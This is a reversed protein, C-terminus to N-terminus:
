DKQYSLDEQYRLFYRKYIIKLYMKLPLGDNKGGSRISWQMLNAAM